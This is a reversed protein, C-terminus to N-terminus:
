NYEELRFVIDLIPALIDRVFSDECRGETYDIIHIVNAIILDLDNKSALGEQLFKITDAKLSSWQELFFRKCLCCGYPLFIYVLLIDIKM